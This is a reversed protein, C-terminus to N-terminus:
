KKPVYFNAVATDIDGFEFIIWDDDDNDDHEVSVAVPLRGESLNREFPNLALPGGPRNRPADTALRWKQMSNMSSVDRQGSLVELIMRASIKIRKGNMEYAGHKGLGYGTEIVRYRANVVSMRPVPMQRAMNEFLSRLADEEPLEKQCVLDLQLRRVSPHGLVFSNAESVRITLVFKISSNQRLFDEIISRASYENWSSGTANVSSSGGDCVIIGVLGEAGKLQGKKSKLASYLPNRQKITTSNYSPYSANSYRQGEITLAVTAEDDAILLSIKQQGESIQRRIEPEIKTRVFDAIKKRHPLHLATREGDKFQETVAEVRMSVGGVPLGLRSKVREIEKCLDEIPNNEHLGEDSVSTIDAVIKLGSPLTLHIDPCRGSPLPIEHSLNGSKQISSLITTEWISAIRHGGVRNLKRVLKELQGGNLVGVLDNLCKQIDRRTFIM